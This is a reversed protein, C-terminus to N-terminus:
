EKKLFWYLIVEINQWILLWFNIESKTVFLITDIM